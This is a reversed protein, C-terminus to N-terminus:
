QFENARGGKQIPKPDELWASQLLHRDAVVFRRELAEHHEWVLNAYEETCPILYPIVDAGDLQSSFDHLAHIMLQENETHHIVHYKMCLSLRLPPLLRNCFVHSIVNYKKYLRHSIQWTQISLGLLVPVLEDSLIEENIFDM